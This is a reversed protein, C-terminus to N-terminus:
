GQDFLNWFEETENGQTVVHLMDSNDFLQRAQQIYQAHLDKSVEDGIWVVGAIPDEREAISFLYVYRSDLDDSDFFPIAEESDASNTHLQYVKVTRGNTPSGSDISGHSRHSRATLQIDQSTMITSLDGFPHIDLSSKILSFYATQHNFTIDHKHNIKSDCNEFKTVITVSSPELQERYESRHIQMCVRSAVTYIVDSSGSPLIIHYEDSPAYMVYVFRPDVSNSSDIEPIVIYKGNVLLKTDLRWMCAARPSHLLRKEYELLQCIFGTNPQCVPRYSQVFEQGKVYSMKYRWMVYAIAITCSRSVGEMCHVLIRGGDSIASEIFDICIPFYSQINEQRSDETSLPLYKIKEPFPCKSISAAANIVHTIKRSSLVEWDEAILWGSVYLEGPIVESCVRRFEKFSPPEKPDKDVSRSSLQVLQAFSPVVPTRFLPIFIPPKNIQVNENVSNDDDIEHDPNTNATTLNSLPFVLKGIEPFTSNATGSTDGASHKSYTKSLEKGSDPNLIEDMFFIIFQCPFGIML